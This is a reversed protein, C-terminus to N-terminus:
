CQGDKDPVNAVTSSSGNLQPSVSLCRNTRLEHNIVVYLGFMTEVFYCADDPISYLVKILTRMHRNDNTVYFTHAHYIYLKRGINLGKKITISSRNAAYTINYERRVYHKMINGRNHRIAM